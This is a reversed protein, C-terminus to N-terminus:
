CEDFSQHGADGDFEITTSVTEGEESTFDMTLTAVFPEGQATPIQVITLEGTGSDYSARDNNDMDRWEFDAQPTRGSIDDNDDSGTVEYTGPELDAPIVMNVVVPMDFMYIELTNVSNAMGENGCYLSLNNIAVEGERAGTFRILVEADGADSTDGSNGSDPSCAALILVTFVSLLVTGLRNSHTARM